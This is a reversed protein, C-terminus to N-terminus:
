KTEYKEGVLTEFSKYFASDNMTCRLDYINIKNFVTDVLELTRVLKNTDEPMYIQKIIEDLYEKTNVKDIKDINSRHLLIIAKLKSSTNSGYREKGNWPTGYIIPQNDILRVIPKDGNIVKADSLHKLWLKIHTTKGTGTPAIFLYANDKYSICAGHILFGNYDILNAAIQNHIDLFDTPDNVVIDPSDNTEILYDNFLSVSNTNDNNVQILLDCIKLYYM